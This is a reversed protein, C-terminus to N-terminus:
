LREIRLRQGRVRTNQLTRAVESPMGEPLDVTSFDEYIEIRGIYESSLDAEGAIAGVIQGPKVGHSHGVAIRYREMGPEDSPRPASRHDRSREGFRGGRDDRDRGRPRDGFRDERGHHGRRDGSDFRERREHRGPREGRDHRESRDYRERRDGRDRPGRQEQSREERRRPREDEAAGRARQRGISRFTLPQDGQAMQALAAFVAEHSADTEELYETIM